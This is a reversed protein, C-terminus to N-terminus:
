PWRLLTVRVTGGTRQGIRIIGVQELDLLLRYKSWRGFGFEVLESTPVTVTANRVICARRYICLALAFQGKSKTLGFAWTFWEVPCGILRKQSV